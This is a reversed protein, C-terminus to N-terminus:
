PGIRRSSYGSMCLLATVKHGKSNSNERRSGTVSLYLLQRAQTPHAGSAFKWHDAPSLYQRTLFVVARSVM